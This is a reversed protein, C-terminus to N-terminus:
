HYIGSYEFSEIQRFNTLHSIKIFNLSIIELCVIKLNM